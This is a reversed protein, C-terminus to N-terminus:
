WAALRVIKQMPLAYPTHEPSFVQQQLLIKFPAQAGLMRILHLETPLMHIVSEMLVLLVVQTTINIVDSPLTALLLILFPPAAAHRAIRQM